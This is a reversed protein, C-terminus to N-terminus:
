PLPFHIEIDNLGSDNQTEKIATLGGLCELYVCNFIHPLNEIYIFSQIKKGKSIRPDWQEQEATEETCGSM